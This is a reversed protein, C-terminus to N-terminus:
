IKLVCTDAIMDHLARKRDTFGAMIFGIYCILASLIMSIERVAASTYDVPTFDQKVVKLQLAMKGLTQGFRGTMIILYAFGIGAYLVFFITWVFWSDTNRAVGRFPGLAFGIVLFDIFIALFRIWFGAFQPEGTLQFDSSPFGAPRSPAVPGPPAPATGPAPPPGPPRIPTQEVPPSTLSAGCKKCYAANEENELHCNDCAKM